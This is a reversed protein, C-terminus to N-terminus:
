LLPAMLQPHM